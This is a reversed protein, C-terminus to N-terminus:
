QWDVFNGQSTRRLNVPAYKQRCTPALVRAEYIRGMFEVLGNGNASYGMWRGTVDVQERNLRAQRDLTTIVETRGVQQTALLASLLSSNM